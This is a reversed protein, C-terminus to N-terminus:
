APSPAQSAEAKHRQLLVVVLLGITVAVFGGIGVIGNWPFPAGGVMLVTLGGVANFTGHFIGAAWVTQARDRIFTIIPSLLVCFVTFLGVGLLRDDPYNHGFLYIMPAHWIGWIAGTALSYRWFGAGRWLDYLYGRWGLEESFTLIVTNVLAGLLLAQALIVVSLYPVSRLQDATEPSFGQTAAIVGVGPDTYTHESLAITLAVAGASILVPTLWAALWWWGPKFRLGLAAIRRGKEFAFTCIVAAISPGFMSLALVYVGIQLNEHLGAAWGSVVIAWTVAYAITLFIISKNTNSMM